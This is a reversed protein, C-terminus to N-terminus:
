SRRCATGSRRRMSPSWRRAQSTTCASTTRSPAPTSTGIPPCACCPTAPAPASSVLRRSARRSAPRRQRDARGGDSQSHSRGVMGNAQRDGRFSPQRQAGFRRSGGRRLVGFANRHRRLCVVDGIGSCLGVAGHRGRRTKWGANQGCALNVRVSVSVQGTEAPLRPVCRGAADALAEGCERCKPGRHRCRLARWIIRPGPFARVARNRGRPGSFSGSDAPPKARRTTRMWM